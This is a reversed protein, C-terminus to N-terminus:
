AAEFANDAAIEVASAAKVEDTFAALAVHIFDALTAVSARLDAKFDAL